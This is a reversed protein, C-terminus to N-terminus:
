NSLCISCASVVFCGRKILNGDTPMKKQFNRWAYFSNSPPISNHRLWRTWGHIQADSYLFDHTHKVSLRGDKTKCCVLRDKLPIVLLTIRRIQHAIAPYIYVCLPLPWMPILSPLHVGRNKIKILNKALIAIIKNSSWVGEFKIM